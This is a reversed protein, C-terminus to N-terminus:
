CKQSSRIYDDRDLIRLKCSHKVHALESSENSTNELIVTWSLRIATM